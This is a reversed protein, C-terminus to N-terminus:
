DCGDFWTAFQPWDFFSPHVLFVKRGEVTLKAYKGVPHTIADLASLTAEAADQQGLYLLGRCQVSSSSILNCAHFVQSIDWFMQTREQLQTKVQLTSM